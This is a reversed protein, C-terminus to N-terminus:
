DCNITTDLQYDNGTYGTYYPTVGFTDRQKTQPTNPTVNNNQVSLFTTTTFAINKNVSLAYINGKLTNRAKILHVNSSTSSLSVPGVTICCSDSTNTSASYCTLSPYFVPYTDKNRTYTHLVDFNRVDKEDDSFTYTNIIDDGVPTIYRTITKIPSGDGFNWDIRDIPFSGTLTTRPTLQVTFPTYGTLPRTVCYMNATPPTEVVVIQAKIISQESRQITDLSPADNVTCVTDNAEFMWKKEFDAATETDQWSVANVRQLDAWSWNKCHKEFCRTEDFWQKEYISNQQTQEWKITNLSSQTLDDWFWRIDYKGRCYLDGSTDRTPVKRSQTLTLSVRYTGPMIYTHEVANNCSLSAINNTNNYYDGFNWNYTTNDYTTDPVSNNVFTVKLGPAYGSVYTTTCYASTRAIVSDLPTGQDWSYTAPVTIASLIYYNAQM